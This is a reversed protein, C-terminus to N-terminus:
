ARRRFARTFNAWVFAGAAVALAVVAALVTREGRTFREM